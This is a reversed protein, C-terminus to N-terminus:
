ECIVNQSQKTHSKSIMHSFMFETGLTPKFHVSVNAVILGKIRFM